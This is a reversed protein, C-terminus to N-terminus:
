TEPRKFHCNMAGSPVFDVRGRDGEGEGDRRAEGRGKLIKLKM